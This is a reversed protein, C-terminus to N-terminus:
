PATEQSTTSVTSPRRGITSTSTSTSTSPRKKKKETAAVFLPGPGAEAAALQGATPAGRAAAIRREALEVYAASAEIGIWHRGTREAAIATSGSGLFPDLVVAPVPEAAVCGCTPRWGIVRRAPQHNPRATTFGDDRGDREATRRRAAEWDATMDPTAHEVEMVPAWPAGCAPCVGRASTSALICREALRTPFAAYHEGGQPESAIRWVSPCHRGAAGYAALASRLLAPQHVTLFALFAAIGDDAMGPWVSRPNRGSSAKAPVSVGRHSGPRGNEDGLRRRKNGSAKNTSLERVAEGDAFYTG